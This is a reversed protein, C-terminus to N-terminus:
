TPARKSAIARSKAASKDAIYAKFQAQHNILFLLSTAIAKEIRGQNAWAEAIQGNNEARCREASRECDGARRSIYDWQQEITIKEPQM